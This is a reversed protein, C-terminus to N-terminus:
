GDVQSGVAEEYLSRDIVQEAPLREPYLVAGSRILPDQVQDIHGDRLEWDFILEPAGHLDDGTWGTAESLVEAVEPDDRYGDGLWTNITRVLARVLAVATDRDAGTVLSEDLVVGDLSENGRGAALWFDDGRAAIERWHPDELWAAQVEGDVLLDVADPGSVPEVRLDNLALDGQVMSQEMPLATVDAIGEPVAVSGGQLDTWRGNDFADSRVWMGEQGIHHDGAASSVAGGLVLRDGDGSAVLDFFSGHLDGAVADVGGAALADYAAGVSDTEVLEVTLNEAEFEGHEEALLFPAHGEDFGGAVAVTLVQEEPLPSAVPSGSACRAVPRGPRLDDPDTVAAEGCGVGPDDPVSPAAGAPAAAAAGGDAGDSGVPGCGGILFVVMVGLAARGQGRISWRDAGPGEVVGM